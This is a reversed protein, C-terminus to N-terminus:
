MDAHKQLVMISYRNGVKETWRKATESPLADGACVAYLVSKLNYNDINKYLLMKFFTPTGFTDNSINTLM